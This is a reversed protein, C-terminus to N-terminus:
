AEEREDHRWVGLLSLGEKWATWGGITFAPFLMLLHVVLTAPVSREGPVDYLVQLGFQVAVHFGGVGGPTPLAVGLAALVTLVIAGGYGLDVGFARVGAWMALSVAAWTLVSGLLVPPWIRRQALSALGDGFREAADLLRSWRPGRGAPRRLWALLRARRSVLGAAVMVAALISVGLLASLTGIRELPSGPSSSAVAGATGSVLVAGLLALLTLPDLVTREVLVTALAYSRSLGTRAGLMVPRVLDGVRGPLIASIFYGFSTCTLCLSFSVPRDPSTLQLRWRAARLFYHLFSGAVCVLLWLPRASRAEQWAARLDVGRLFFYLLLLTLALSILVRARRPMCLAIAALMKRRHM